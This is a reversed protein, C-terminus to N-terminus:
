RNGMVPWYVRIEDDTLLEALEDRDAKDAIRLVLREAVFELASLTSLQGTSLDGGHEWGATPPSDRAAPSGTWGTRADPWRAMSRTCTAGVVTTSSSTSTENSFWRHRRPALNTRM